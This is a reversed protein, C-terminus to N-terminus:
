EVEELIIEINTTQENKNTARGHARPMYGQITRGQYAAIHTIKMNDVDFGKYEANNEANKVVKLMYSATKKPFSGPGIGKQHHVKQKHYVAPLARKMEIIEELYKKAEAVTMGKLAHACNIADKWSCHLEYGYAKASKDPDREATYKPM